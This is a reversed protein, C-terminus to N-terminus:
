GAGGAAGLRARQTNTTTSNPVRADLDALMVKTGAKLGKTITAHRAGIVGATVATRTMTDGSLV